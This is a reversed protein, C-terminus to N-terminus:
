SSEENGPLIQDFEEKVNEFVPDKLLSEVISEHINILSQNLYKIQSRVSSNYRRRIQAQFANLDFEDNPAFINDDEFIENLDLILSEVCDCAAYFESNWYILTGLLKPSNAEYGEGKKLIFKLELGIDLTTNYAQAFNQFENSNLISNWESHINEIKDFGIALISSLVKIDMGLHLNQREYDEQLKMRYSIYAMLTPIVIASYGSFSPIRVAIVISLIIILYIVIREGLWKIKMPLTFELLVILLFPIALLLLLNIVETNCTFNNFINQVEKWIFDISSSFNFQVSNADM